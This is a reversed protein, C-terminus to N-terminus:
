FELDTGGCVQFSSVDQPAMPLLTIPNLITDVFDLSSWFSIFGDWHISWSIAFWVAKAIDCRFFLHVEDENVRNCLPCLTCAILFRKSLNKRVPFGGM